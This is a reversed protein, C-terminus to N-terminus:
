PPEAGPWTTLVVVASCASRSFARDRPPNLIVGGHNGPTRRQRVGLATEGQAATLDILHSFTFTEPLAYESVPRFLVEPGEPGLLLDFVSRLEGRLAIQAIVHSLIEGTAMVETDDDEFLDANTPDRLEVLVHPRRPAKELMERVLYHGLLTRADADEATSFRDSGLILINRYSSVDLGALDGPVAYDGELHELQLRALQLGSQRLRKERGKIGVTSMLDVHVREQTHRDLERLVTPVTYNWGLILLRREPATSTEPPRPAPTPPTVSPRKSPTLEYDAALVVLRDGPAILMRPDPNLVPEPDQSGRLLGLVIADRYAHALSGVARGVLGTTEKIYIESGHDHSLIEDLVYSFGPHRLNQAVLRGVMDDSAVVHAVGGGYAAEAVSVVRTSNVAAVMMPLPGKSDVGAYQSVTLMTKITRADHDVQQESSHQDDGPLILVAARAYDVRRLHDIQLPSGSRLIVQTRRYRPGLRERLQAALDLDVNPVLIAIQLKRAGLLRLFRRVRSTSALIERLIEPARSTWGLIVVHNTKAIPTLGQELHRISTNLWQTMVAILAGLFLVYGLVTIVTSVVRRLAGQDDGLYGPDTLRLFAWWVENALAESHRPDYRYVILGGVLSIAAILGAVFLLRYYTGGLLFRELSFVLRRRIRGLM